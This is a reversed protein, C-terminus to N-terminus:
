LKSLPIMQHFIFIQYFIASVLKLTIQISFFEHRLQNESQPREM